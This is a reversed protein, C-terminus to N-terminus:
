SALSLVGYTLEGGNFRTPKIAITEIPGNALLKKASTETMSSPARRGDPTTHFSWSQVGGSIAPEFGVWHTVDSLTSEFDGKGYKIVVCVRWRVAVDPKANDPLPPTREGALLVYKDDGVTLLRGDQNKVFLDALTARMQDPLASWQHADAAAMVAKTEAHNAMCYTQTLGLLSTKGQALSPQAMLDFGLAVIGITTLM